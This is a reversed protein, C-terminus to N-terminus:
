MEAPEFLQKFYEKSVPDADVKGIDSALMPGHFTILGTQQRIATHLFTIDSYGWFIKPHNKIM